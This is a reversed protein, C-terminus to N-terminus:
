TIKFGIAELLVQIYVAWTSISNWIIHVSIPVYINKSRYYIFGFGLGTILYSPLQVYDGANMVHILGFLTGAVAVCLIRPVKLRELGGQIAGRFVLEEVIPGLVCMVPIMLAGLPKRFIEVISSQNDSTGSGGLIKTIEAGIYMSAYVIICGLFVDMINQYASKQKLPKIGLVFENKMLIITIIFIILYLVWEMLVSFSYDDMSSFIKQFVMALLPAILMSILFYCAICLIKKIFEKDSFIKKIENKM